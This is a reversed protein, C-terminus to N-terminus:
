DCFTQDTQIIFPWTLLSPEYGALYLSNILKNYTDLLVTRYKSMIIMPEISKQGGLILHEFENQENLEAYIININGNLLIQQNGQVLYISANFEEVTTTNEDLPKNLILKFTMESKKEGFIFNRACSFNILVYGLNGDRKLGSLEYKTCRCALGPFIKDSANTAIEYFTGQLNKVDINKSLVHVIGDNNVNNNDNGPAARVITFLFFILFLSVVKKIM